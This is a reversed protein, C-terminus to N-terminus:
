KPRIVKGWKPEEKSSSVIYWLVHYPKEEPWELYGDTIVVNADGILNREEAEQLAKVVSTGGRGHVKIKNWMGRRYKSVHEIGHDFEVLSIKSRYAIRDVHSFAEQLEAQGMSGSTDVFVTVNAMARCTKGPIGFRPLRRNPRSYTPRMGGCRKGMWEDLERAWNVKVEKLAKIADELHGPTKGATKTAEEVMGDIVARADDENGTSNAWTGHDDVM